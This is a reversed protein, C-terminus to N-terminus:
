ITESAIERQESVTESALEVSKLELYSLMKGWKAIQKKSCFDDQARGMNARCRSRLEDSEAMRRLCNALGEVDGADAVLGIEYGEVIERSAGEPLSAV